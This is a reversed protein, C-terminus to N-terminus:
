LENIDDTLGENGFQVGMQLIPQDAYPEKIRDYGYAERMENLTAHMKTLNELVDTPNDQLVDIKDTNVTLRYGDRSLGTYNLLDEALENALPIANQEYIAKKAEKANEYKAQGYYLDV